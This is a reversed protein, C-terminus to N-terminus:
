TQVHGGDKPAPVLHEPGDESAQNAAGDGTEGIM